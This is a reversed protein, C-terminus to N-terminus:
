SVPVTPSPCDFHVRTSEVALREAEYLLRIAAMPSFKWSGLLTQWRLNAAVEVVGSETGVETVWRFTDADALVWGRNRLIRLLCDM